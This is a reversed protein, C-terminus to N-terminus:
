RQLSLARGPTPGDNRNSLRIFFDFDYRNGSQMRLQHSGGDKFFALFPSVDTVWRGERGYTTIWRAMETSCPCNCDNYGTGEENCTQTAERIEGLPSECTCALTDADVGAVCEVAAVYGECLIGESCRRRDCM